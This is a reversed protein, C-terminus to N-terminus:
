SRPYKFQTEVVKMHCLPAAIHVIDRLADEVRQVPHTIAVIAQDRQLRRASMVQSMNDVQLRAWYVKDFRQALVLLVNQDPKSFRAFFFFSDHLGRWRDPVLLGRGV